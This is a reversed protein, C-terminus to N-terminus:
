ISPYKCGAAQNPGRRKSKWRGASAPLPGHFYVSRSITRVDQFKTKDFVLLPLQAVAQAARGKERITNTSIFKFSCM